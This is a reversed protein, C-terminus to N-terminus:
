ENHQSFMSNFYKVHYKDFHNNSSPLGKTSHKEAYWIYFHIINLLHIMYLVESEPDMKSFFIVPFLVPYLKTDDQTDCYNCQKM